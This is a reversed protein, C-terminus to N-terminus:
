RPTEVFDYVFVRAQSYDELSMVEYKLFKDRDPLIYWGLSLNTTSTARWWKWRRQGEPKIAIQRATLPVLVASARLLSQGQQQAEGDVVVQRVVQGSIRRAGVARLAATMNPM